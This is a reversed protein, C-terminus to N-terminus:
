NSLWHASYRFRDTMSITGSRNCFCSTRNSATRARQEAARRLQDNRRSLASAIEAKEKLAARAKLAIRNAQRTLLYLVLVMPSTVAAILAATVFRIVTLEGSLQSADKYYEGVAIVDNTGSAFIPAYVEILPIDLGREGHNEDADMDDYTAVVRGSFAQELIPSPFRQGVKDRDTAYALTGDRLWIKISHVGLKKTKIADIQAMSRESLRDSSRLQQAHESLDAAIASSADHAVYHTVLASVKSSILYTLLLMSILIVFGAAILYKTVLAGSTDGEHQGSTPLAPHETDNNNSGQSM